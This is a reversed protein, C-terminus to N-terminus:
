RLKDLIVIPYQWLKVALGPITREIGRAIGYFTSALWNTPILTREETSGIIDWPRMSIESGDNFRRWWKLPHASFYLGSAKEIAYEPAALKRLRDVAGAAYRIPSKPNKYLIVVRGGPKCIRILERVAKEQEAADIHYIVHACFVADFTSTEFPACCISGLKPELKPVKRQAIKLATESIDIYSVKEFKTAISVHSEPMDGGGAILLSGNRGAFCGITRADAATHYRQYARGYQRFLRDESGKWGREDYFERVSQEVTRAM